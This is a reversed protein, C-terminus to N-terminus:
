NNWRDHIKFISCGKLLSCPFFHLQNQSTTFSVQINQHVLRHPQGMLLHNYKRVMIGFCVDLSRDKIEVKILKSAKMLQGCSSDKAHFVVTIHLQFILRCVKRSEGRTNNPPVWTQPLNNFYFKFRVAITNISWGSRVLNWHNCTNDTSTNCRVLIHFGITHLDYCPGQSKM